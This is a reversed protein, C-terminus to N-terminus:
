DSKTQTLDERLEAILADRTSRKWTPAGTRNNLEWVVLDEDASLAEPKLLLTVTLKPDDICFIRQWREDAALAITSFPLIAVLCLM